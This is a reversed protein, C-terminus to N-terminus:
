VARRPCLNCSGPENNMKAVGCIDVNYQERLPEWTKQGICGKM